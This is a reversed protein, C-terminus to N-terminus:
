KVCIRVWPSDKTVPLELPTDDIIQLILEKVKMRYDVIEEISPWDLRGGTRYNEQKYSCTIM